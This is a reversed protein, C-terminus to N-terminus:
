RIWFYTTNCWISTGDYVKFYDYNSETWSTGTITVKSGPTTPYITIYGSSSNNYSGNVGGGDYITEACADISISGTHPSQWCDGFGLPQVAPSYSTGGASCSSKLRFQFTSTATLSTTAPM